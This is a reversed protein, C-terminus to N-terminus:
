RVWEEYEDAIRDTADVGRVEGRELWLTRAALRRIQTLDHSAVVITVGAEQLGELYSLCREQFGLDGVALLEDILLIDPDIHIAVSFALRLRQGDSYTRLSQDMRDELEAFAAIDPLRRRAEVRTLGALVAGTLANEEGSLEPHFAEGLTLLAGIQGHMEVDGSTPRTVGGLVRLLTSKGSGNRGMVAITEGRQVEFSVDRLAWTETRPIREMLSRLTRPRGTVSRHYRKTVSRVHIATM